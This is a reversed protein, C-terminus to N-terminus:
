ELVKGLGIRADGGISFCNIMYGRLMASGTSVKM